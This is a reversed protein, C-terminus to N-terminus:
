SPLLHLWRFQWSRRYVGSTRSPSGLGRSQGFGLHPRKASQWLEFSPSEAPLSNPGAAWFERSSLSVDGSSSARRCFSVLDENFLEHFGGGHDPVQLVLVKFRGVFLPHPFDDNGSEEMVESIGQGHDTGAGLQGSLASRVGGEPFFASSGPFYRFALARVLFNRIVGFRGDQIKSRDIEVPEEEYGSSRRVEFRGALHGRSARNSLAKRLNHGAFLVQLPDEEVQQHIGDVSSGSPSNDEFGAKEQGSITSILIVSSPGPIGLFLLFAKQAKIGNLFGVPKPNLMQWDMIWCCLPLMEM